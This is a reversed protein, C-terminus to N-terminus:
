QEYTWKQLSFPFLFHITPEQYDIPPFVHLAKHINM